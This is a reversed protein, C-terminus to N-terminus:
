TYLYEVFDYYLQVAEFDQQYALVRVCEHGNDHLV